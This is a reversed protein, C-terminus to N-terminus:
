LSGVVKSDLKRKGKLNSFALNWQIQYYYAMESNDKAKTGFCTKTRIWENNQLHFENQYSFNQMLARKTVSAFLLEYIVKLLTGSRLM